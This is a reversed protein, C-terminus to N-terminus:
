SIFAKLPGWKLAILTIPACVCLKFCVVLTCAILIIVIQFTKKAIMTEQSKYRSKKTISEITM